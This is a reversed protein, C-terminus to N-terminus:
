EGHMMYAETFLSDEVGQNFTVNETKLLTKHSKKLDQMESEIITWIGDVERIDVVTFEKILQNKKDFYDIKVPLLIDKAVWLKRKGYQSEKADKPTSELVWCERGSLKEEGVVQHDDLDPKRREMDEYTYDTNVFQSSKQSSVIRRVRKLAPLYLFQDSDRGKNEWTLFSTGKIDAPSIFRIFSKGVGDYDKSVSMFSRLRKTGKKDILLMQVTAKSDKGDERDYMQRALTPGDMAHLPFSFFVTVAMVGTIVSWRFFSMMKAKRTKSHIHNAFM